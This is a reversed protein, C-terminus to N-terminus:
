AKVARNTVCFPVRLIEIWTLECISVGMLSKGLSVRLPMNKVGLDTMKECPIKRIVRAKFHKPNIFEILYKTTTNDQALIITGRPIREVELERVRILTGYLASPKDILGQKQKLTLKGIV